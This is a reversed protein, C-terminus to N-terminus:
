KTFLTDLVGIANSDWSHDTRYDDWRPSFGQDKTRRLGDILSRLCDPKVFTGLDYELVCKKLPGEGSSALVPLHFQSALNLVGSASRFDASYVLTLYDSAIFYQYVDSEPIFDNVWHCRKDVSHTVALDQYFSISRQGISQERGVVLLHMNEVDVLSKILLDLNKGDRIHGFALLVPAADPIGLISRVQARLESGKNPVPVPYPGHPIEKVLFSRKPRGYDLATGGHVYAVDVFSYATSICYDHWFKPGVRFDRIPDHVITGFRIGLSNLARLRRVWFPSFYEFYSGVVVHSLDEQNILDILQSVESRRTKIHAIARGLKGVAQYQDRLPVFQTSPSYQRLEREMHRYGLFVTRSCREALAACQHVAYKALGGEDVPAFYALQAQRTQEKM